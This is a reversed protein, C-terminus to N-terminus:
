ESLCRQKANIQFRLLSRIFAHRLSCARLIGKCHNKWVPDSGGDLHRRPVRAAWPLSLNLDVRGDELGGVLALRKAKAVFQDGPETVM